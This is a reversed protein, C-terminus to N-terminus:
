IAARIRRHADALWWKQMAPSRNASSCRGTCGDLHSRDSDGCGPLCRSFRQRAVTSGHCGGISSANRLGMSLRLNTTTLWRLSQGKERVMKHDPVPGLRMPLPHWGRWSDPLTSAQLIQANRVTECVSRTTAFAPPKLPASISNGTSTHSEVPDTAVRQMRTTDTRGQRVYVFGGLRRDM